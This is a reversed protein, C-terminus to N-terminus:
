ETEEEDDDDGEDQPPRHVLGYVLVDAMTDAFADLSRGGRVREDLLLGLLWRLSLLVNARERLAAADHEGPAADDILKALWEEGLQQGIALLAPNWEELAVMLENDGSLLRAVLPLDRAITLLARVYFHLREEEPLTGELLPALKTFLVQKELAVAHMLLDAKNEFHLYVTGKAVEARQAIEDVSTKRYGQAIFLETAAKLIRARKRDKSTVDDGLFQRQLALFHEKTWKTM